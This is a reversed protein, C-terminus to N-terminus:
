SNLRAVRLVQDRGPLYPEGRFWITNGDSLNLSDAIRYVSACTILRKDCGPSIVLQEGIAVPYAPVDHLAVTSSAADWMRMLHTLGRNLGTIWQVSGIAFDVGAADVGISFMDGTVSLVTAHRAWSPYPKMMTTGDAFPDGTVAYTPTAIATRGDTQAEYITNGYRSIPNDQSRYLRLQAGDFFMADDQGIDFQVIAGSEVWLRLTRTGALVQQDSFNYPIWTLDPKPTRWPHNGIVQRSRGEANLCQVYYRGSDNNDESGAMYIGGELYVEGEDVFSSYTSIDIDQYIATRGGLEGGFATTGTRPDIDSFSSLDTFMPTTAGFKVWESTDTFDLDRATLTLSQVTTGTVNPSRYWEGAKVDQGPFLVPPNVPFTCESDGFDARCEPQYKDGIVQLFHQKLGRLEVEFTGSPQMIVEGLRGVRLVNPRYRPLNKYDVIYLECYALDFLGARIDAAEWSNPDFFGGLTMTDVKMDSSMSIASRSYGGGGSNYINTGVTIDADLDTFFYELGDRRVIHWCTCLTTTEAGISRDLASGGGRM